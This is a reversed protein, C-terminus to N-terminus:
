GPQLDCHTSLASHYGSLFDAASDKIVVAASGRAPVASAQHHRQHDGHKKPKQKKSPASIIASITAM